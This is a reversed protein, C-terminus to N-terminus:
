LCVTGQGWPESRSGRRKLTYAGNTVGNVTLAVRVKSLIMVRLNTDGAQVEDMSEM